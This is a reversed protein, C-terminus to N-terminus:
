ATASADKLVTISEIDSPNITNLPNKGESFGGPNFGSNDIPVGDVVYLPESSATISTGGRIRITSKAGPAGNSSTIQVGAVKGTILQDPSTVAGRNFNESDVSALAGTKDKKTTTGYGIVVVEDLIQGATMDVNIEARDGIEIVQANYGTYSFELQTAGAPVDLSYTGDIDTSTGTATGIVLINAGILPEGSEADTVVGTITRQSYAATGMLLIALLLLLHTSLRDFKLKM